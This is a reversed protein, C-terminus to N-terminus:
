ATCTVPPASWATCGALLVNTTPCMYLYPCIHTFVYAYALVCTHTLICTYALVCAYTLVHAHIPVCAHALICARVFICTQVPVSQWPNPLELKSMKPELGAKLRQAQAQFCM